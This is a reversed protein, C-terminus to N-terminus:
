DCIIVGSWGGEQYMMQLELIIKRPYDRNEKKASLRRGGNFNEVGDFYQNRDVGSAEALNKEKWIWGSGGNYMAFTLAWDNCEDIADVKTKLENDYLMQAQISWIPNLADGYSLVPYKNKVHEETQPTFQALGEAYPSKADERWTSEKHIQAALISIPANIGFTAQAHRIIDAKYQNANSPISQTSEVWVLTYPKEEVPTPSKQKETTCGVVFVSFALVLAPKIM